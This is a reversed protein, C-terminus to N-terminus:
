AGVGKHAPFLGALLGDQILGNIMLHGHGEHRILNVGPYGALSEAFDRDAEIERSYLIDYETVGNERDMLNTLLDRGRPGGPALAWVKKFGLMYGFFLAAWGGHSNGVAYIETVHPNAAIHAEHWNLVAELSPIEDSIGKEYLCGNPDRLCAVNRDSIGSRQLFTMPSLGEMAGKMGSYVFFLQSCRKRTLCAINGGHDPKGRISQRM